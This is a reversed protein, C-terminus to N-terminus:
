APVRELDGNSAPFSWPDDVLVSRDPARLLTSESGQTLESLAVSGFPTEVQVDVRCGLHPLLSVLEKLQAAAPRLPMRVLLDLDSREHVREVGTALSFGVSGVPGWAWPLKAWQRELSSLAEYAPFSATNVNVRLSEPCHVVGAATQAVWAACRQARTIGRVGVPVWGCRPPARRVVVCPALFLWREADGQQAPTEALVAGALLPALLDHPRLQQNM